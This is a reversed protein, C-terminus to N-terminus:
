NLLKDAEARTLDLVRLEEERSLQNEPYVLGPSKLEIIEDPVSSM